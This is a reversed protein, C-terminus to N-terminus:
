VHARGIKYPNTEWIRPWLVPDKLLDRAIGWLTDGRKVVYTDEGGPVQPTSAPAPAQAGTQAQATTLGLALCLVILGLGGLQGGGTRKM